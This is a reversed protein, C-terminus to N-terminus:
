DPRSRRARRHEEIQDLRELEKQLSTRHQRLAEEVVDDRSKAYHRRTTGIDEHGLIAQVIHLPVGDNLLSSARYRRFDHAALHQKRAVEDSAVQIVKVLTRYHLGIVKRGAGKDHRIFIAHKPHPPHTKDREDLYSQIAREAEKSLYVRREKNGKGLVYLTGDSNDYQGRTIGLMEQARMGTAFLTHMMARDRLLTLRQRQALKLRRVYVQSLAGSKIRVPRPLEPLPQTDYYRVIKPVLSFEEFPKTRSSGGGQRGRRTVRLYLTLDGVALGDPLGGRKVALWELFRVVADTYQRVTAPAYV